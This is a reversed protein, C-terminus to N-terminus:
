TAMSNGTPAPMCNWGASAATTPWPRCGASWPAVPPWPTSTASWANFQAIVFATSGDDHRSCSVSCDVWIANGAKQLIREEAQRAEVEGQIDRWSGVLGRVDGGAGLVTRLAMSIWRSSGQRVQDM